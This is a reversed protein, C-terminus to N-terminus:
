CSNKSANGAASLGLLLVTYMNSTPQSPVAQLPHQRPRTTTACPHKRSSAAPHGATSASNCSAAGKVRGDREYGRWILQVERAGQLVGVAVGRAGGKGGEQICEAAQQWGVLAYRKRYQLGAADEQAAEGAVAARGQTGGPVPHKMYAIRAGALRREAKAAKAAHHAPTTQLTPPGTPTHAAAPHTSPDGAAPSAGESLTAILQLFTVRGGVWGGVESM